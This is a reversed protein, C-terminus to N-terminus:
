KQFIKGFFSDFNFHNPQTLNLQTLEPIIPEPFIKFFISGQGINTPFFLRERLKCWNQSM